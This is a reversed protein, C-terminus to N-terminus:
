KVKVFRFVFLVWVILAKVFFVCLRRALMSLVLVSLGLIRKELCVIMARICSLSITLSVFLCEMLLFATGEFFAVCYRDEQFSSGIEGM